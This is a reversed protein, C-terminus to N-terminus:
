YLKGGPHYSPDDKRKELVVELNGNNYWSNEVIKWPKPRYNEYIKGGTTPSLPDFYEWTMENCPNCHTPDQFYGASGAYPTSIMFQGGPKLIRWAEDMFRLFVGKHPNIHEVLQSAIVLDACEDPFPWPFSELDHVVDIGPAKVMDVNIFGPMLADSSGLNINVKAKEKLLAKIWSSVM